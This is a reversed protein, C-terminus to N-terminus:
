LEIKYFLPLQDCAPLSKMYFVQAWWLNTLNQGPQQVWFDLTIKLHLNPFVIVSIQHSIIHTLVNLLSRPLGPFVKDRTM